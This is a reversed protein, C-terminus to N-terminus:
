EYIELHLLEDVDKLNFAFEGSDPFEDSQWIVPQEFIKLLAAFPKGTEAVQTQIERYRERAFPLSVRHQKRISRVRRWYRRVGASIAKRRARERASIRAM